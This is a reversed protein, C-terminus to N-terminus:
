QIGLRSLADPMESLEFDYAEAAESLHYFGLSLRVHAPHELYADLDARTAFEIQAFFPFDRALSEYPRGTSVRSGVLFRRIQPISAHAARMADLLQAREEDSLGTKPKFLVVHAIM